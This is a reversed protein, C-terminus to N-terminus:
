GSHYNLTVLPCVPCISPQLTAGTALGGITVVFREGARLANIVDVASWRRQAGDRDLTDVYSVHEHGDTLDDYQVLVVAHGLEADGQSLSQEMENSLVQNGIDAGTSDATEPHAPGAPPFPNWRSGIGSVM